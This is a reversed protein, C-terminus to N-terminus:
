ARENAKQEEREREHEEEQEAEEMLEEGELESIRHTASPTPGRHRSYIRTLPAATVGHALISGFIVASAVHWVMPDHTHGESMTAYYLAAIGIPGFWAVFGIDRPNLWPRLFPSLLALTPIRRLLLVLLTAFFLMWGLKAWEGFPLAIGFVVFMPLMFMKATAEQVPEKQSKEKDGIRLNFAVGAMFVSLLSDMHLLEAFGLTFFCLAITFSLFSTEEIFKHEVALDLLKAALYGVIWGVLAAGGVGLLLSEYIWKPWAEHPPNGTMLVPLM